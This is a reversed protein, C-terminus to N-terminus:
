RIVTDFGLARAVRDAIGGRVPGFRPNERTPHVRNALLVVVLQRSPDIWLSTGTFGTHGFSAASLITGASSM